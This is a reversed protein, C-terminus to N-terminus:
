LERGATQILCSPCTIAHKLGQRSSSEQVAVAAAMAMAMALALPWDCSRETEAAAAISCAGQRIDPGCLREGAELLSELSM